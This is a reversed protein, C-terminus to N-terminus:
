GGGHAEAVVSVGAMALSLVVGVLSVSSEVPDWGAVTLRRRVGREGLYGAVMGAGLVGLCRGAARSPGIALRRIAMGQAALMVVPASLGTGLALSDRGVHAPEGRLGLPTFDYATRRRLAVVEGVVGVALQLASVVVLVWRCRM